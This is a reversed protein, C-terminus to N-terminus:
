RSVQSQKVKMFFPFKNEVDRFARFSYKSRPEHLVNHGKIIQNIKFSNFKYISFTYYTISKSYVLPKYNMCRGKTVTKLPKNTMKTVSEHTNM